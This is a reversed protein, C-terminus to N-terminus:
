APKEPWKFGVYLGSSIGTMALLTDDFAPLSLGRYISFISIIGLVLTWILVQLRQLVPGNADTLIDDLFTTHRLPSAPAAGTASKSADISIAGLATAGSIGLLMLSQSTLIGAYDGTTVWIAVFGVTLMVFWFAMQCRGLSFTRQRPDTIAPDIDRLLSTQHGMRFVIFLL